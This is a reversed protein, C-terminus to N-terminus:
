HTRNLRFTVKGPLRRQGEEWGLTDVERGRSIQSAKEKRFIACHILVETAVVLQGVADRTEVTVSERGGPPCQPGLLAMAHGTVRFPIRNRLFFAM